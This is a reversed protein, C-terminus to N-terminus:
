SLLSSDLPAWRLTGSRLRPVESCPWPGSCLTLVRVSSDLFPPNKFFEPDIGAAKAQGEGGGWKRSSSDLPPDSTGKDRGVGSACLPGWLLLVSLALLTAWLSGARLRTAM